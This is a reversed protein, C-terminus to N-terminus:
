AKDIPRVTVLHHVRRLMGMMSEDGRVVRRRGVKGLGLARLTDKQRQTQRIESATQVVELKQTEAAM